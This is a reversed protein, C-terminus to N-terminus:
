MMNKAIKIWPIAQETAKIIIMKSEIQIKASLIPDILEFRTLYNSISFKSLLLAANSLDLSKPIRLYNGNTSRTSLFM